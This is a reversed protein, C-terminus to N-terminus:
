LYQLHLNCLYSQTRVDLTGFSIPIWVPHECKWKFEWSHWILHFHHLCRKQITRHGEVPSGGVNLDIMHIAVDPLMRKFRLAYRRTHKGLRWLSARGIYCDYDLITFCMFHICYSFNYQRGRAIEINSDLLWCDIHIM